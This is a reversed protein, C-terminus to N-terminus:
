VMGAPSRFYLCTKGNIIRISNIPVGCMKEDVQGWTCPGAEVCDAVCNEGNYFSKEVVFKYGNEYVTVPGKESGITKYRFWYIAEKLTPKYNANEIEAKENLLKQRADNIVRLECEVDKIDRM